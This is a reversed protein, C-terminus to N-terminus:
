GSRKSLLCFVPSLLRSVEDFFYNDPKFHNLGPEGYILFVDAEPNM